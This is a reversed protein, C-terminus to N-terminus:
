AKVKVFKVYCNGSVFADTEGAFLKARESCKAGLYGEAQIGNVYSKTKSDKNLVEYIADKSFLKNAPVKKIDTVINPTQIQKNLELETLFEREVKSKVMEDYSSGNLLIEEIEKNKKM